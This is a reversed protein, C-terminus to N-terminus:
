VLYDLAARLNYIIEGVVVPIDEPVEDSPRDYIGLVSKAGPKFLHDIVQAQTPYNDPLLADQYQQRFRETLSELEQLHINARNIRQFAGHLPHRMFFVWFVGFPKSIGTGLRLSKRRSRFFAAAGSFGFDRFRGLFYPKLSPACM